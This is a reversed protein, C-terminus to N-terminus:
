EIGAEGMGELHSVGGALRNAAAKADGDAAYEGDFAREFGSIICRKEAEGM